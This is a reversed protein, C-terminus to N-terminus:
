HNNYPCDYFICAHLFSTEIRVEKYAKTFWRAIWFGLGILLAFCILGVINMFISQKKHRKDYKDKLKDEKKM